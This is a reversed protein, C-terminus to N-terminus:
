RNEEKIRGKLGNEKKIEENKKKKRKKKNMNRWVEKQGRKWETNKVM